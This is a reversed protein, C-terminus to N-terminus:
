QTQLEFIRNENTKQNQDQSIISWSGASDEELSMTTPIQWDASNGLPRNNSSIELTNFGPPVIKIWLVEWDEVPSVSLTIDKCNQSHIFNTQLSLDWYNKKKECVIEARTRLNSNAPNKSASTRPSLDITNKWVMM